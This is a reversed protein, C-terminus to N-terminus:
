RKQVTIKTGRLEIGHRQAFIGMTTVICTGLATAVLDTPSFAEGRGHNDVPADTLITTRSPAHEAECRLEGLYQIHVEVMPNEPPQPFVARPPSCRTSVRSSPASTVRRTTRGFRASKTSTATPSITPAARPTRTTPLELTVMAPATGDPYTLGYGCWQGFSGPCAVYTQALRRQGRGLESVRLRYPRRAMEDLGAWMAEALGTSQPGDADLEALAWHLSVIKAPLWALIFDRLARSEPESWPAAGSPEESAARWHCDCNRNLDVGRANYRTGRTGGDPNALPLVIM